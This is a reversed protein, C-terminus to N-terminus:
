VFLRLVTAVGALVAVAGAVFAAKKNRTWFTGDDNDDPSADANKIISKGHSQATTLTIRAKPSGHVAVHLANGIAESSPDSEEDSVTVRLEAVLETLTTRVQDLVGVISAKSVVWYLATIKQFLEGSAQDIARAIDTAGGPTLQVYAKEPKVNASDELERVGMRLRVEEGIRKKAFAPLDNPSIQQGTIQRPGIFADIKLPAGVIRYKPVEDESEYGRLEKGAWERLQDSNVAGGLAICKRLVSSLPVSDDLADREIEGVLTRARKTM